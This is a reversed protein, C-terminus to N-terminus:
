EKQKDSMLRGGILGVFCGVIAQFAPQLVEFIKANDVREVFLGALLTVIVAIMVGALSYAAIKFIHENNMLFPM